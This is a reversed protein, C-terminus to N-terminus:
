RKRWPAGHRGMAPENLFNRLGSWNEKERRERM